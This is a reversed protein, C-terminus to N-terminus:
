ETFFSFVESHFVQQPEETVATIAAFQVEASTRKIGYSTKLSDLLPKLSKVGKKILDLEEISTSTQLIDNIENLIEIKIRDTVSPDNADLIIHSEDIDMKASVDDGPALAQSNCAGDPEAIPKLIVHDTVGIKSDDEIQLNSELSDCNNFAEEEALVVPEPDNKLYRCVLHIHKCMNWRVTSDSCTCTYRHICVQCSVCTLTCECESAQKVTFIQPRKSPSVVNWAKESGLNTEIVLDVGLTTSKRHRERISRLKSSVQNDKSGSEPNSKSSQRDNQTFNTRRFENGHGVHTMCYEVNVSGDSEFVAKMRSPCSANIKASGQSKLKRQRQEKEIYIGSRHCNFYLSYNNNDALAKKGSRKTFLANHKDELEKKWDYFEGASSFNFIETKLAIDHERLFHTDLDRFNNFISDCMACMVLCRRKVESQYPNELNPHVKQFHRKVNYTRTFTRTCASCTIIKNSEASSNFVASDATTTTEEMM